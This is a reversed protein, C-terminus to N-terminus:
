HTASELPESQGNRWIWLGIEALPGEVDGKADFRAESGLVHFEAPRLTDAVAASQTTGAIAVAHAGLQVARYGDVGRSGGMAPCGFAARYNLMFAQTDPWDLFSRGNTILTGEAANGAILGYDESNIGDGAIMTPTFGAESMQLRLLGAE